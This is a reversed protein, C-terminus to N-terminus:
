SNGGISSSLGLGSVWSPKDVCRTVNGQGVAVGVGNVVGQDVGSRNAALVILTGSDGTSVTDEGVAQNRSDGGGSSGLLLSDLGYLLSLGLGSSLSISLSVGLSVGPQVIVAQSIGSVGVAITIVSMTESVKTMMVTVRGIMSVRISVMAVVALPLSLSFRSGLSIGFSGGLSVGPKVIVPQSIGSVGVAITIM